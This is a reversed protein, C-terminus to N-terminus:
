PGDVFVEEGIDLRPSHLLLLTSTEDTTNEYSFQRGQSVLCLDGRGLHYADADVVFRIQGSLVYYYKDSRKSWARRHRGGPPVVVVALSCGTDRDATYDYIDLGDFGFPEVSSEKIVM